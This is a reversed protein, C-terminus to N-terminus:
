PFGSYEVKVKIAHCPMISRKVINPIAIDRLKVMYAKKRGGLVLSFFISDSAAPISGPGAAHCNLAGFNYM